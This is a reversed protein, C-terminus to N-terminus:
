ILYIHSKIKIYSTSTQLPNEPDSRENSSSKSSDVVLNDDSSNRKLAAPNLNRVLREAETPTEVVVIQM